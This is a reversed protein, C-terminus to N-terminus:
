DHKIHGFSTEAGGKGPKILFFQCSVIIQFLKPLHFLLIEGTEVNAYINMLM